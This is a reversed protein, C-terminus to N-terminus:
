CPRWPMCPEKSRRATAQSLPAERAGDLVRDLEDLNVNVRRRASNM